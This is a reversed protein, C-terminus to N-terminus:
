GFIEGFRTAPARTPLDDPELPANALLWGLTPVASLRQFDEYSLIVAEKKGHRTIVSAQGAVADDIVASLSAKADKLQLERM